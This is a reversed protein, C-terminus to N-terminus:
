PQEEREFRDAMAKAQLPGMVAQIDAQDALQEPTDPYSPMEAMRRRAKVRLEALRRRIEDRREASTEDARLARVDEWRHYESM